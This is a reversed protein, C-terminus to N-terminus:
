KLSCLTGIISLINQRQLSEKTYIAFNLFKNTFCRVSSFYVYKVKWSTVRATVCCQPKHHVFTTWEIQKGKWSGRHSVNLKVRKWLPLWRLGLESKRLDELVHALTPLSQCETTHSVAWPSPCLGPQLSSFEPPILLWVSLLLQDRRSCSYLYCLHGQKM